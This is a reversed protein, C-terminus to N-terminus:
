EVPGGAGEGAPLRLADPQGGLDTRPQDPHEVDQVLGGDAQVLPVVVAQDVRQGPQPVEAVRQDHHLVVLVGDAVGVPDHVDPGPGPLAAAPHHVGAPVLLQQLVGGGERTVVQGTPVGDRHRGLPAPDVPPPLQGHDAGPLVVQPPDVDREGEPRQHRDGPHGSRALGGQHVVDERPHQGVAEVAGPHNRPPVGADVPEVLDVLQDLDVLGRDPPRRPGVRGGVGADEVVDPLQEGGGGLRLDPAVLRAAEREVHLAAAALRAGTVARDLDLHVEQGVDVHGALDAPAGPVVPLRQLHVVLAPGDGLDEVHGDLLGGVEEFGDLRDVPVQAGKDVHPEAVHPQALRGGGEGAALRLADLQRALELLPRGPSGDVHEVFRRGAQVELVDALEEPHDVSQDVLPVRHDDDLVVEVDDLGRVPDDVHPGFPTGTAARHHRLAGRLLHGHVGVAM